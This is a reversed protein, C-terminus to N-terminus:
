ECTGPPADTMDCPWCQCISYPAATVWEEPLAGWEGQRPSHLVLGPSGRREGKSGRGVGGGHDSSSTSSGTSSEFWLLPTVLVLAVIAFMSLLARAVCGKSGEGGATRQLARQRRLM